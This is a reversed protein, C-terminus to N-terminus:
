PRDVRGLLVSLPVGALSRVEHALHAQDAFGTAYAADAPPIGSRALTVARHFRLVRQLTKPGYGFAAVARRRLQRDSLGLRRAADRVTAGSLEAVLAPAMPDAPVESRRVREAVARTLVDLPDGAVALREALADAADGWVESLAPRADRVADLPVGLAPAALGPRFRVAVMRGGPPVTAVHPGTDPGALQLRGDWDSWIVDVCGDPVVRQVFPADAETRGHTWVCALGFGPPAPREAYASRPM